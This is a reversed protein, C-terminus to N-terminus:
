VAKVELPVLLLDTSDMGIYSRCLSGGKMVFELWGIREMCHLRLHSGLNFVIAREHLFKIKPLPYM